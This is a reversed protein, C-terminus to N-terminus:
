LIIIVVRFEFVKLLNRLDPMDLGNGGFGHKIVRSRLLIKIVKKVSGGGFLDM